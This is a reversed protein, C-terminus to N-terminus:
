SRPGAGAREKTGGARRVRAVRWALGAVAAIALVAGAAWRRWRGAYYAALAVALTGVLWAIV